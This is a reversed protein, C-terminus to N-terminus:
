FAEFRNFNLRLLLAHVKSEAIGKQSHLLMQVFLDVNREFEESVVSTMERLAGGVDDVSDLEQVFDAFAVCAAFIANLRTQVHEDNLFCQAVAIDVAHEHECCFEDFFEGSPNNVQEDLRDHLMSFKPHLVDAQVYWELADLFVSMRRRLELLPVLLIATRSRLRVGRRLYLLHTFAARLESVARRVAFTLSFLDCYVPARSALVPTEHYSLSFRPTLTATPSLHLSFPPDIPLSSDVNHHMDSSVTALLHNLAREADSLEEGSLLTGDHPTPLHLRTSRLREFFLHWYLPNALLLYERLYILRSAIDSFPLLSSLHNAAKDRWRTTASQITLAASIPHQQLHSITDDADLHLPGIRSTSTSDSNSSLILNCKTATGAFLIM